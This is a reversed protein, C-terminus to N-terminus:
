ALKRLAARKRTLRRKQTKSVTPQLVPDYGTHLQALYGPRARTPLGLAPLPNTALSPPLKPRAIDPRQRAIKMTEELSSLETPVDLLFEELDKRLMPLLSLIASAKVLEKSRETIYAKRDSVDFAYAVPKRVHDYIYRAQETLDRLDAEQLTGAEEKQYIPSLEETYHKYFDGAALDLQSAPVDLERALREQFKRLPGLRLVEALTLLIDPQLHSSSRLTHLGPTNSGSRFYYSQYEPRPLPAFFTKQWDTSLIREVDLSAVEYYNGFDSEKIAQELQGYLEEKAPLAAELRQLYSNMQDLLAEAIAPYYWGGMAHNMARRAVNAALYKTTQKSIDTKPCFISPFLRGAALIPVYGYKPLFTIDWGLLDAPLIAGTEPLLKLTEKFNPVAKEVKYDIGLLEPMVKLFDDSAPSPQGRKMWTDWILTSILHNVLFTWPIGSGQGPWYLQAPGLLVRTNCFFDPLVKLAIYAWTKNFLPKADQTVWGRTLLYYGVASVHSQTANAEGKALDISYWTDEAEYYIYINDAYLYALNGTSELLTRVFLDMGGQLFNVKYLSPTAPNNLTNYSNQLVEDSIKAGLIYSPTPAAFINRTKDEWTAIKYQEAKPCLLGCGLYWFDNAILHNLTDKSTVRDVMRRWHTLAEQKAELRQTPNGLGELAQDVIKSRLTGFFNALTSGQQLASKLTSAVSWYFIDALLLNEALTQGKTKGVYPLGAAKKPKIPPLLDTLGVEQQEEETLLYQTPSFLLPFSSKSPSYLPLTVELLKVVQDLNYGQQPLNKNRHYGDLGLAVEYNKSLRNLQGRLSGSGYRTTALTTLIPELQAEFEQTTLELAQHKGVLINVALTALGVDPEYIKYTPHYVPLRARKTSLPLKLTTLPPLGLLQPLQKGLTELKVDVLEPIDLPKFVTLGFHSILEELEQNSFPKVEPPVVTKMLDAILKKAGTRETVPIGAEPFQRRLLNTVTERTSADSFLNSM